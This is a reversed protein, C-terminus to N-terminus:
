GKMPTTFQHGCECKWTIVENYADFDEFSNKQSDCEPCKVIEFCEGITNGSVKDDEKCECHKFRVPVAERDIFWKLKPNCL